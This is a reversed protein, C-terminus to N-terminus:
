YQVDPNIKGLAWRMTFTLPVAILTCLLGLASAYSFNSETGGLNVLVYLHYGLTAVNDGQLNFLTYINYQNTFIGAIGVILFTSITDFILPITISIFEKFPSVGDLEAYEVVSIPIRTMASAYMLVGTGFGMITNFVIVAPMQSDPNGLPYPIEQGFAYFLDVLGHEVMNTYMFVTVVSSIISPLFLMVRFFESMFYKKYIYFSFFLALPIGVILHAGYFILSNKIMHMLQDGYLLNEFITEFQILGSFVHQAQGNVDKYEKFALLVSNFNVGIYFILYHLFPLAILAYYFATQKKRESLVTNVNNNPKKKATKRSLRVSSDYFKDSIKRRIRGFVTVKDEKIKQKKM